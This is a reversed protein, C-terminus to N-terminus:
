NGKGVGKDSQSAPSEKVAKHQFIDVNGSAKNNYFVSNKIIASAKSYYVNGVRYPRNACSGKGATNPHFAQTNGPSGIQSLMGKHTNRRGGYDVLILV